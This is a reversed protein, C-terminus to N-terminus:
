SEPDQPYVDTQPFCYRLCLLKVQLDQMWDENQTQQGEEEERHPSTNPPWNVTAPSETESRADDKRRLLDRQLPNEADESIPPILGHETRSSFSTLQDIISLTTPSISKL